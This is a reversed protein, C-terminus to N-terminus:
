GKNTERSVSNEPDEGARFVGAHYGVSDLPNGGEELDCEASCTHALESYESLGATRVAVITAAVAGSGCANRNMEAEPVIAGADLAGVLSIFRRDNVDKAWRIGAEGRGHPEFGFSPGYHTLDTSAVFAVRRGLDGAAMACARGVEEAWPGPRVMIPLIMLDGLSRQLFPLEVEISHERRHIGADSRIHRCSLVRKALLEDVRVVGLPTRWSGSAFLSAKNSDLVHVAGFIIVTEPKGAAIASLSLGATAGSFKWGAHPALAGLAGRVAGQPNFRDVMASCQAADAPYFRGAFAPDRTLSM